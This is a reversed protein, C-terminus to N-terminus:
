ANMSRASYRGFAHVASGTRICAVGMHRVSDRKRGLRCQSRNHDAPCDVGLDGKGPDGGVADIAYALHLFGQAPGPAAVHQPYIGIM